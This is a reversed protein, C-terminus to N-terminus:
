EEKKVSISPNLFNEYDGKIVPIILVDGKGKQIEKLNRLFMIKLKNDNMEFRTKMDRQFMGLIGMIESRDVEKRLIKVKDDAIEKFDKIELPKDYRGKEYIAIKLEIEDEGRAYELYASFALVALAIATSTDLITFIHWIVKSIKTLNFTAFFGIIFLIFTLIVFIFLNKYKEFKM